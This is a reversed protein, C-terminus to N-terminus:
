GSWKRCAERYSCSGCNFPSPNPYFHGSQIAQWVREVTHKTRDVQKAGLPVDHITLVPLKTKTLVAFSLKIPRGDAISKVLESYLLLQPAMDEVKFNNWSCRATKFDSVHLENGADVILDVRALLDPCGPIIQGRLEEEVGLIVGNPRAFDSQLFIRLLRDAMRGLMDRNEGEGFQVIQGECSDWYEQYVGLLSDIDPTPRGMLLQEYHFQVAKHMASGFVLSSAITKVPLGLVYKFFFRLPCTQFTSVASYSIHDFTKPPPRPPTQTLALM